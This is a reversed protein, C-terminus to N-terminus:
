DEGQVISGKPIGDCRCNIVEAAEGQPDLPFRCGNRFTQGIQVSDGDLDVHSERVNGDRSSLWEIEQVGAQKMGEFRGASFASHTETRAITRANRREGAFFDLVRQRTDEETHGAYISDSVVSRLDAAMRRTTGVIKVRRAQLQAIVGPDLFNFDIAIGSLDKLSDAGRKMGERWMPTMVVIAEERADALNFTIADIDSPGLAKVSKREAAALAALTQQQLGLVLNRWRSEAKDELGRPYKRIAKWLAARRQEVHLAKAEDSPAPPAPGPEPAPEPEPPNVVDEARQVSFPLVSVDKVPNGKLPLGLELRDNVEGLTVGMGQLKVGAEVKAGLDEILANVAETKFYCELPIAHRDLLDVQIVSQIYELRPFLELEFFIRLQPMMNAYNAFELIGALAPPLGAGSLTQERQYRRGANFDMDKFSQGTPTWDLGAPLVMPTWAREQGVHRAIISMKLEEAQEPTLNYSQTPKLVGDIRAGRRFYSKNHRLMFYDSEMEDRAAKAWTTGFKDDYPNWNRFHMMQESPIVKRAGQPQVIFAVPDDDEDFKIEVVQAPRIRRLSAPVRPAGPSFSTPEGQWLFANGWHELDIAIAEQLQRGRMLGNPKTWLRNIPHTVDVVDTGQKKFELPIRMINQAFARIARYFTVSQEYPNNLRSTGISPSSDLGSRFAQEIWDTSSKQGPGPAGAFGVAAGYLAGRLASLLGM